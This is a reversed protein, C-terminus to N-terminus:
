NLNISRECLFLYFSQVPYPLLLFNLNEGPIITVSLNGFIM